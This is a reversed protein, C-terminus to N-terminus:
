RRPTSRAMSTRRGCSEPGASGPVPRTSATASATATTPRGSGAPHAAAAAAGVDLGLGVGPGRIVGICPGLHRRRHQARSALSADTTVAAKGKDSGSTCGMCVVLSGAAALTLLRSRTRAGRM